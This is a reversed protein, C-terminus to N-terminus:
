CYPAYGTTPNPVNGMSERPLRGRQKQKFFYQPPNELNGLIGKMSDHLCSLVLFSGVIAPPAVHICVEEKIIPELHVHDSPSFPKLLHILRLNVIQGEQRQKLHPDQIPLSGVITKVLRCLCDPMSGSHRETEKGPNQFQFGLHSFRVYPKQHGVLM